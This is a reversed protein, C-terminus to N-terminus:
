HADGLKSIIIIFYNHQKQAKCMSLQTGIWKETQYINM